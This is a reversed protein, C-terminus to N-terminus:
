RAGGACRDATGAAGRGPRSPRGNVRVALGLGVGAPCERRGVGAVPRDRGGAEPDDGAVHFRDRGSGVRGPAVHQAGVAPLQGSEDGPRGALGRVLGCGAGPDRALAEGLGTDGRPRGEDQSLGGGAARHDDM